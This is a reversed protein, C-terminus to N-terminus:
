GLAPNVGELYYLGALEREVGRHGAMEVAAQAAEGAYAGAGRAHAVVFQDLGGAGLQVRGLQAGGDLPGEEM